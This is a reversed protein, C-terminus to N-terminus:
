GGRAAPLWRTLLARYQALVTEHTLGAEFRAASAARMRRQQTEDALFRTLAADLSATADFYVAGEGAVWRNFATTTRSCRCTRLM